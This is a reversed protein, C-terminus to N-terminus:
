SCRLEKSIGKENILKPTDLDIFLKKYTRIIHMTEM